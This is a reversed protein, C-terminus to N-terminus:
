TRKAYRADEPRFFDARVVVVKQEVIDIIAAFLAPLEEDTSAIDTFTVWILRAQDKVQEESLTLLIGHADLNRVKDKLRKDISAIQIAQRVEERGEAPLYGKLTFVREVKPGQTVVEVAVRNTYSFFMLRVQPQRQFDGVYSKRFSLLAAGLYAYRDGILLRVREDSSAVRAIEVIEDDSPSRPIITSAVPKVNRQQSPKPPWGAEPGTFRLTPQTPPNRRLNCLGDTVRIAIEREDPQCREYM